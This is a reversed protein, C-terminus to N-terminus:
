MQGVAKACSATYAISHAANPMAHLGLMLIESPRRHCLLGTKAGQELVIALRRSERLLGQRGAGPKGRPGDAVQLTADIARRAIVREFQQGAGQGQRWLLM